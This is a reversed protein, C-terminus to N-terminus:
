DWTRARAVSHAYPKMGWWTILVAIPGTIAAATSLSYRIASEAHFVHDTFLAVFLPGLAYGVLNFVLQFLARIQGRMQNPTVIQLAANGPGIGVCAFFYNLGYLALAAAPTPMLPYLISTPVVAITALQLVRLNADDRGRRAYHQALWGGVLLGFPSILLSVLGLRYGSQPMSWGYTRVFFAPTWLAAGFSLLTKIGMAAFIPLFTRWEDALFRGILKIPMMDPRAGAAGPLLGRRAPESVTAMSLAIFLGPLGVLFFVLQWSHLRGALPLVVPGIAAAAQLAAGGAILAFGGGCVFGFSLLSMAMPLKDPPFSDTLISYTAPAFSSEGAGVGVRAWFLQQYSQAVGGFATMISWFAIGLGIILRRSFRDALRAIPLGLFAYFFVFAFGSLISFQTDSVHLDRKIYEVLVSLVGRDVTAVLLALTLILLAYYARARGPWPMPTMRRLVGKM